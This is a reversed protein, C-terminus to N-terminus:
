PVAPLRVSGKPETTYTKLKATCEPVLIRYMPIGAVSHMGTKHKKFVSQNEQRYEGSWGIGILVVWLIMLISM